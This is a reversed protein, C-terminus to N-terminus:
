ILGTADDRHAARRLALGWLGLCLILSPAGVFMLIAATMGNTRLVVLLATALVVLVLASTIRIM